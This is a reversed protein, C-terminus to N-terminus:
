CSESSSNALPQDGSSGMQIGRRFADRAIPTLLSVPMFESAILLAVCLAMSGVASWTQWASLDAQATTITEREAEVIM